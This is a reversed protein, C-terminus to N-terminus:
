RLSTRARAQSAHRLADGAEARGSALGHLGNRFETSLQRHLHQGRIRFMSQVSQPEEPGVGIRAIREWFGNVASRGAGVSDACDTGWIRQCCDTSLSGTLGRM